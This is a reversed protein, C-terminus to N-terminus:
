KKIITRHKQGQLLEIKQFKYNIIFGLNEFAFKLEKLQNEDANQNNNIELLIELRGDEEQIVRYKVVNRLDRFLVHIMHGSVNEGRINKIIESSRGIVDKLYFNDSESIIGTTLDGNEYKLIPMIKNHLDTILINKLDSDNNNRLSVHFLNKFIKLRRDDKSSAAIPSAETGGYLNICPCKFSSEISDWTTQPLAEASAIVYKLNLESLKSGLNKSLWDLISVYTRLVTVGSEKIEQFLTEAKKEDLINSKADTISYIPFLSLKNNYVKIRQSLSPKKNRWILGLKGNGVYSNIWSKFTVSKPLQSRLSQFVWFPEGSSGSTAGKLIFLSNSKLLKNYNENNRYNSKLLFLNPDEFNEIISFYEEESILGWNLSKKIISYPLKM